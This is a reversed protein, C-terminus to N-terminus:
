TWRAFAHDTECTRQEVVLQLLEQLLDGHQHLVWDDVGLPDADPDRARDTRLVFVVPSDAVPM